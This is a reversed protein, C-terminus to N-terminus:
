AAGVDIGRRVSLRLVTQLANLDAAATPHDELNVRVGHAAKSRDKWVRRCLAEDLEQGLVRESSPRTGM